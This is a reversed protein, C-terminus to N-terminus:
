QRQPYEHDLIAELLLTGIPIKEFPSFSRTRILYLKDAGNPMAALRKLAERREERTRRIETM